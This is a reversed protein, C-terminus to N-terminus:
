FMSRKGNNINVDVARAVGSLGFMITFFIVLGM